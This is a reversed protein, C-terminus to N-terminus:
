LVFDLLLSHLYKFPAPHTPGDNPGAAPQSDTLRNRDSAGLSM